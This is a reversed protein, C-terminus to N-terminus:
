TLGHFHNIPVIITVTQELSQGFTVKQTIHACRCLISNIPIFSDITSVEQKEWVEVPSGFWKKQEHESLWSVAALLVEFTKKDQREMTVIVSVIAYKLILGPTTSSDHGSHKAYVMASASHLSNISGYFEGCFQVCRSYKCLLLTRTYREGFCSRLTSEILSHETASLCGQKILPVLRCRDNVFDLNQLSLSTPCPLEPIHEYKLSGKVKYAFGIIEALDSDTSHSVQQSTVFKRMLQPEIGRHNTAVSGLIGNLRECAFLWFASGPGFDLLCDKLHCHLHLNPTCSNTGYLQEFMQCFRIFLGDLKLVSERSIARSCLILCAQVFVYWCKYHLEPLLGKLVILSFIQVWNKWQDATFSSFGSEIKHPIRGTDPPLIFQDVQSQIAAFDEKSLINKEKWLTIILKATGLLVNHMPDVVTFRVSDFYPLRTLETYRVGYEREIKIRQAQTKALKWEKSNKKQEQITRRPWTSRDFGSYDAKERFSSTPFEKLCRSCGKLAGHGVFGGVKRAAPIDSSNCLLAARIVKCGEPTTLSIGKWLSILDTVLPELYSNIHLSPEHPGPIIGVLIMNERLYRLHRPYNLIAIYIAGVSYRVHKYPQFWDVNILLGLSYRSSLFEKGDVVLFDQWVQGDYIDALVGGPISRSKWNSLLDLKGPLNILAEISQVVSKYCFEKLPVFIHKGSSTKVSKFLNTHCPTRMRKQPHRPFPIFNCKLEGSVGHCDEHECTTHCRQCVIFRKFDDRNINKLAHADRLSTPFLRHLALIDDAATINYLKLFMVSFLKFLVGVVRDPLRFLTQLLLLFTCVFGVMKVVSPKVPETGTQRNSSSQTNAPEHDDM